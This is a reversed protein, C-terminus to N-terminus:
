RMSRRSKNYSSAGPPISTARQASQDMQQQAMTQQPPRCSPSAQPGRSPTGINMHQTQPHVGISPPASAPHIDEAENMAVQMDVTIQANRAQRDEMMDIRPRQSENADNLAKIQLKHRELETMMREKTKELEQVRMDTAQQLAELNEKLETIHDNAKQMKEFANASVEPIPMAFEADTSVEPVPMPAPEETPSVDPMLDPPPEEKPLTRISRASGPRSRSGGIPRSSRQRPPSPTHSGARKRSGGPSQGASRAVMNSKGIAESAQVNTLNNDIVNNSMGNDDNNITPIQSDITDETFLGSLPGIAGDTAVGDGHVNHSSAMACVFHLAKQKAIVFGFRTILGFNFQLRKLWVFVHLLHAPCITHVPWSHFDLIFELVAFLTLM